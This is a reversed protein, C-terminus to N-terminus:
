GHRNAPPPTLDRGDLLPIAGVLSTMLMLAHATNRKSYQRHSVGHASAHRSYQRPIEDGRWPRYQIHSRWVAMLVYPVQSLASKMGEKLKGIAGEYQNTAIRKNKEDKLTSWLVSDLTNTALAQAAAYHGDRAALVANTAFKAFPGPRDTDLVTECDDLISDFRRTLIVLKKEDTPARLLAQATSARPVLYLPIGTEEALQLVDAPEVDKLGALNPPLLFRAIQRALPSFGAWQLRLDGVVQDALAKISEQMATTPLADGLISEFLQSGLNQTEKLAPGLLHDVNIQDLLWRQEFAPGTATVGLGRLWDRQLAHPEVLSRIQRLIEDNVGVIQSVDFGPSAVGIQDRFTRIVDDMPSRYAGLIGSPDFPSNAPKKTPKDNGAAKPDEDGEESEPDVVDDAM